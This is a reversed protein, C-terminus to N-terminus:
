ANDEQGCRHQGNQHDGQHDDQHGTTEQETSEPSEEPQAIRDRLERMSMSRCDDWTLAPDLAMLKQAARYRQVGMGMEAAQTREELTATHCSGQCPLADLCRQGTEVIRECQAPNDCAVTLTVYADDKLYPAFTESSALSGLAEEAHLGELSSGLSEGTGDAKSHTGVAKEALAPGQLVAVGDDNLGRASLVIDNEDLALEISPNVDLTIFAAATTNESANAVPTTQESSHPDSGPANLSPNALELNDPATTGLGVFALAFCAAAALSAAAAIIRMRARGARQQSNSETSPRHQEIFALTRENLHEPPTVAAFAERLRTEPSPMAKDSRTEPLAAAECPRTEPSTM